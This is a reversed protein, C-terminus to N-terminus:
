LMLVITGGTRLLPGNLIPEIPMLRPSMVVLVSRNVLVLLLRPAALPSLPGSKLTTAALTVTGSGPESM